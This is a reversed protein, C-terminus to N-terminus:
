RKDTRPDLAQAAGYLNQCFNKLSPFFPDSTASLLNFLCQVSEILRNKHHKVVDVPQGGRFDSVDELENSQGGTKRIDDIDHSKITHAHLLSELLLANWATVIQLFDELEANFERHHWGMHEVSLYGLSNLPCERLDIILAPKILM